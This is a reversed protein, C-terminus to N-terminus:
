TRATTSIPTTCISARTSSPSRSAPQRAHVVVRQPLRRRLSVVPRRQQRAPREGGDAAQQARLAQPGSLRRGRRAALAADRRVGNCGDRRPRARLARVGGGGDHDGPGRDRGARARDAVRARADARDHRRQSLARAGSRLRRGRRHLAPHRAGNGCRAAARASSSRAVSQLSSTNITGSSDGAQNYFITHNGNLTQAIPVTYPSAASPTFVYQWQHPATPPIDSTQTTGASISASRDEVCRRAPRCDRDPEVDAHVHQRGIAPGGDRLRAGADADGLAGQPRREERRRHCAALSCVALLTLLRSAPRHTM